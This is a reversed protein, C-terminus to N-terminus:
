KDALAMAMAILEVIFVLFFVFGSTHLAHTDVRGGIKDLYDLYWFLSPIDTRLEV